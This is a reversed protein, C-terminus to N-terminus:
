FRERGSARRMKQEEYKATKYKRYTDMVGPVADMFIRELADVDFMKVRAVFSAWDSLKRDLMDLAEKTVRAFDTAGERTNITEIPFDKVAKHKALYEDTMGRVVAVGAEVEDKEKKVREFLEVYENVTM